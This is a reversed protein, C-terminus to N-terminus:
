FITYRFNIFSLIQEMDKIVGQMIEGRASGAFLRSMMYGNSLGLMVRGDNREFVAISLPMQVAMVKTDDNSLMKAAYEPNCFKVIKVKQMTPAYGIVAAQQDIVDVVQWGKQANINHVLLDLTKEFSYNVQVEKFLMTPAAFKFTAMGFFVGLVLGIAVGAALVKKNM